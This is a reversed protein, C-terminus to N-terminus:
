ANSKVNRAAMGPIQGKQHQLKLSHPWRTTGPSELLHLGAAVCIILLTRGSHALDIKAMEMDDQPLANHRHAKGSASGIIRWM